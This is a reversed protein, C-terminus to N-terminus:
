SVSCHPARISRSSFGVDLTSPRGGRGEENDSWEYDSVIQVDDELTQVSDRGRDRRMLELIQALTANMEDAGGELRQFGVLLSAVGDRM